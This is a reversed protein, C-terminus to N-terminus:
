SPGRGSALFQPMSLERCGFFLPFQGHVQVRSGLLGPHDFWRFAREGALALDATVRLCSFQRGRDRRLTLPKSM